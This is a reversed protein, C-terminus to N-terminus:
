PGSFDAASGHGLPPQAMVEFLAAASGHGRPMCDGLPPVDMVVAPPALWPGFCPAPNICVITRLVRGSDALEEKLAPRFKAAECEKPLTAGEFILSIADAVDNDESWLDAGQVSLMTDGLVLNM